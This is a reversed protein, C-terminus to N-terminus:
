FQFHGFHMEVADNFADWLGMEIIADQYPNDDYVGAECAKIEFEYAKNIIEQEEATREWWTKITTM